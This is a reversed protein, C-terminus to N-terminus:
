GDMGIYLDILGEPANITLSKAERDLSIIIQDNMPVMILNDGSKIELLPNIPNEIVQEIKGIMGKEKDIVDFGIVEHFYFQKGTKKPLVDLPLFLDKKLLMATSEMDNIDEFKVRFHQSKLSQIREIFFPTLEGNIDVFVSPLSNYKGPQDVDFFAVVDGKSGHTKTIHGLYFCLDKDM